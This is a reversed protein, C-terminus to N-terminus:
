QMIKAKLIRRLAKIPSVDYLKITIQKNLGRPYSIYINLTEAFHTLLKKLSAQKASLTVLGNDYDMSFKENSFQAQTLSAVFLLITSLCIVQLLCILSKRKSERLM